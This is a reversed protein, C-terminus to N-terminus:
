WALLGDAPMVPWRVRAELRTLWCVNSRDRLRCGADNAPIRTAVQSLGGVSITDQM